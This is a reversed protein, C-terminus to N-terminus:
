PPNFGPIPNHKSFINQFSSRQKSLNYCIQSTLPERLARHISIGALWASGTRGEPPKGSTLTTPCSNRVHQKIVLARLGLIQSHLKHLLSVCGLRILGPADDELFHYQLEQFLLRPHDCPVLSIHSLPRTPLLLVNRALVVCTCLVQAVSAMPLTKTPSPTGPSQVRRQGGRTLPEPCQANRGQVPFILLRRSHVSQEYVGRGGLQYTFVEFQLIITSLM